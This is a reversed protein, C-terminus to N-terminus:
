ETRRTQPMPMMGLNRFWPSSARAVARMFLGDEVDTDPSCRATVEDSSVAFKRRRANSSIACDSGTEVANQRKARRAHLSPFQLAPASFDALEGKQTGGNSICYRSSCM